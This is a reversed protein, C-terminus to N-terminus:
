QPPLKKLTNIPASLLENGVSIKGLPIIELPGHSISM